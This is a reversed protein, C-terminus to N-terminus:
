MLPTSAPRNRTVLALGTDNVLRAVPAPGSIVVVFAKPLTGRGAADRLYERLLDPDVNWSTTESDVFVPEAGLYVIPWVSAAFTLTSVAVRDGPGM